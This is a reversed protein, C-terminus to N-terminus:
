SKFHVDYGRSISELSSEVSIQPYYRVRNSIYKYTVHIYM